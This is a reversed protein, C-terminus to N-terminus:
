HETVRLLEELSTLGALVKECGAKFLSERDLQLYQAIESEPAQQHILARAHEDVVILEYIGTRGQYGSHNCKECGVAHYVPSALPTQLINQQVTTMPSASKCEPCLKRLLRQSLVGSLASALLYSEIGMDRLRSIAGVATNTHLTSFVMHGTLSSQVAISATDADRIEGIMIVDPDQRLIARLGKAFTMGAKTNVQTQGVGNLTYEIPDEITLINHRPTNIAKLFAYLSTSKGAGTPGTVLLMGHPKAILKQLQQCMETTMGISDIDIDSANTDLLRLVVREGFAVPIVSVRVDISYTGTELVIRGDQPLRKEAIDLNAMIKLRSILPAALRSDSQSIIQLMGDIRYRITLTDELSEVHIDSAKAKRAENLMANILKIVPANSNETHEQDNEPLQLFLSQLNDQQTLSVLTDESMTAAQSYSSEMQQNFREYSCIKWQCKRGCYRQVQHLVVDNLPEPSYIIGTNTLIVKNKRAYNLPILKTQMNDEM